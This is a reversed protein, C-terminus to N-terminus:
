RAHRCSECVVTVECAEMFEAVEADTMMYNTGLPTKHTRAKPRAEIASRLYAGAHEECVIAGNDNAWLRTTYTPSTSNSM